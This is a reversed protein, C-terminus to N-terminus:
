FNMIKIVSCQDAIRVKCPRLLRTTAAAGCASIATHNCCRTRIPSYIHSQMVPNPYHQTHSQLVTHPYLQSQLVIIHIINGSITRIHSHSPLVTHSYHQTQPQSVTHPYPQAHSTVCPSALCMSTLCMSTLSTYEHQSLAAAWGGVWEWRGDGDGAGLEREM